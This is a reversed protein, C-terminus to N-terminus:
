ILQRARAIRLAQDRGSCGFKTIVRRLHGRVTHISCGTELAIEKPASGNDLARLVAVEAPTLLGQNSEKAEIGRVVAALLRPYGGLNRSRLFAFPEALDDHAITSGLGRAITSVARQMAAGEPTTANTRLLRYAISKRGALAQTLAVIARANETLMAYCTRRPQERKTCEMALRAYTLAEDRRDDLVLFLGCRAHSLMSDDAFSAVRCAEKQLAHAQAFHGEWAALMAKADWPTASLRPQEPGPLREIADITERVVSADGLRFSIALRGALAHRLYRLEGSKRAADASADLYRMAKMPDGGVDAIVALTAYSLTAQKFMGAALAAEVGRTLVRNPRVSEGSLHAALGLRHMVQALTADNEIHAALVEIEDLLETMRANGSAHAYSVVLLSLLRARLDGPLTHDFASKELVSVASQKTALLTSALLATNRAASLADPSAAIARELLGQARDFRGGEHEQLGRLALVTPHTNRLAEGLSEIAATVTDTHAQQILEVGYRELLDLTQAQARIRAYLRLAAVHNGCALLAAAARAILPHAVAEGHLMLDHELFDRFLDHCRYREPSSREAESPAISLFTMRARLDELTARALTFGAAEVVAVDIEPLMACFRLLEREEERLSRLVQEALYDYSLHRAATAASAADPLHSSLRLALNLATAWGSTMALLQDVEHTGLDTHLAHAADYAEERTFQLDREDIPLAADGYVLWSPVALQAAGRASIIWRTHLKTREILAAIFRAPEPDDQALHFDDIAIVGPFDPLHTSMWTALSGGPEQSALAAAVAGAVSGRASPAIGYVADAFGRVFGLLNSHEPRMDYRVYPSQLEALYHQLAVSKGCGAPALIVTVPRAAAERLREIVRARRLLGSSERVSQLM